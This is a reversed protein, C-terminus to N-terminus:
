LFYSTRGIDRYRPPVPSHGESAGSNNLEQAKLL